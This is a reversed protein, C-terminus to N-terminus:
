EWHRQLERSIRPHRLARIAKSEIRRVQDMSQGIAAATDKLTQDRLFRARIVEQQPEPLTQLATEVANRLRELRDREEVMLLIEGAAPDDILDGLANGEGDDTAVPADLSLAHYLPENKQRETRWGGFIAFETKLHFDLWTM